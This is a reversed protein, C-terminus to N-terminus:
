ESPADAPPAEREEPPREWGGVTEQVPPAASREFDFKYAFALGGNAEILALVPGVSLMGRGELWLAFYRSLHWMVGVGAGFAVPGASITDSHDTGTNPCPNFTSKTCAKPNYGM